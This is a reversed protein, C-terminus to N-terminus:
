DNNLTRLWPLLDSALLGREGDAAACDGARGHLMVGRVAAEFPSCGQSWLAGIVGALVDGMGPSAMGPNGVAGLCWRTEDAVVTGAGKLVVVAGYRRAIAQAAAVRDREVAASDTALLRAAEAPHPTLVWERKEEQQALWFLGDADVVLPQAAQRLRQWLARGWDDRGLGPGAVIHTAWAVAEDADAASACESIMLEPRTAMIPVTGGSDCCVKVLGAGTRLAAEAALRPAGFMGRRGGVVLLRGFHGKHAIRSRAPLAVPTDRELLWGAPAICAALADGIGLDACGVLGAHAVGAGTYLGAKRAVLTLTWRAVVADADAVGTDGDVGTPLDVALVPRGSANIARTWARMGARLTGGGGSGVLADVILQASHALDEHWATLEGGSSHYARWAQRAEGHWASPAVTATVRVDIGAAKALRALVLGDGGNNGGGCCVLLPGDADLLPQVHQWLAAGAREMLAYLDVGRAAAAQGEHARIAATSFVPQALTAM